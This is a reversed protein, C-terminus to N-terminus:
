IRDLISDLYETMSQYGRSSYMKEFEEGWEKPTPLKKGSKPRENKQWEELKAKWDMPKGKYKFGSEAYYDYFKQADVDPAHEEAFARVEEVTPVGSSSGSVELQSQKVLQVLGLKKFANLTDKISEEDCGTAKALIGKDCPVIDPRGQWWPNKVARLLLMLYVNKMDADVGKLEARRFVDTDLILWMPESM